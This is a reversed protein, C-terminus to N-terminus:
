YLWWLSSKRRCKGKSLGLGFNVLLSQHGQVKWIEEVQRRWRLTPFKIKGIEQALLRVTMRTRYSREKRGEKREKGYEQYASTGPGPISDVGCCHGCGNCHCCQIRLGCHWLPFGLKREKCWRCEFGDAFKALEVKTLTDSNQGSRM